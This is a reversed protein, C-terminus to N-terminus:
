GATRARPHTRPHPSRSNACEPSLEVPTNLTNRSKKEPMESARRNWRIYWCAQPSSSRGPTPRASFAASPSTTRTSPILGATRPACAPRTAAPPRRGPPVRTLRPSDGPRSWRGTAAAPGPPDGPSPQERSANQRRDARADVPDRRRDVHWREERGVAQSVPEEPHRQREDPPQQADREDDDRRGSDRRLEVPDVSGHATRMRRNRRMSGARCFSLRDLRHGAGSCGRARAPSSPLAAAECRSMRRGCSPRRGRHRAARHGVDVRPRSNAAVGPPM